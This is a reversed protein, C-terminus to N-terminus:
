TQKKNTQNIWVLSVKIRKINCIISEIKGGPKYCKKSKYYFRIISTLVTSNKATCKQTDDFM